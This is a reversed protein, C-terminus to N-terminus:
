GRMAAFVLLAAGFLCFTVLSEIKVRKALKEATRSETEGEDEHGPKFGTVDPMDLPSPLFDVVADLVPQVGMNKLATGCYVPFAKGAITLARVGEKIQDITLEGNELYADTLEDGEMHGGKVLAARAGAAVLAAAQAALGDVDRAPAAGLLVAPPAPPFKRQRIKQLDEAHRPGKCGCDCSEAAVGPMSLFPAQRLREESVPPFHKAGMFWCGILNKDTSALLLRGLPSETTIFSVAM